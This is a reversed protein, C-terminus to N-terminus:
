ILKYSLFWVEWMSLLITALAGVTTAML